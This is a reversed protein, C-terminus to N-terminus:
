FDHDFATHQYSGCHACGISAAPRRAQVERLVVNEGAIGLEELTGVNHVEPLELHDLARESAHGDGTHGPRVVRVVIGRNALVAEVENPFRVDTIVTRRDVPLLLDIWVRDGVLNRVVDTGLRQLTRRVEPVEEKARDWGLEDVVDSLRTDSTAYVIPDLVLAAARLPDAFARREYGHAEAFHRGLSDKGSGKHGAIGIVLPLGGKM